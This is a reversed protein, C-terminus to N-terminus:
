AATCHAQWAAEAQLRRLHPYLRENFAIIGKLSDVDHVWDLSTSRAWFRVGFHMTGDSKLGRVKEAEQIAEEVSMPFFIEFSRAEREKGLIGGLKFGSPVEWAACYDWNGGNPSFERISWLPSLEAALEKLSMNNM